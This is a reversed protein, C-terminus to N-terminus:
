KLTDLDYPTAQYVYYNLWNTYLLQAHSRWTVKPPLTPDDQPYYNKPLDMEMGKNIDRWYERALAGAEYEPHGQVFIKRGDRSMAVYAGAEPSTALLQLDSQAAIDQARVETHRSHPAFFTDDFGRFLPVNPLLVQHEFVGFVKKDLEYKKLGYHYHLGAQAGWCIYLTSFVHTKSWEMVRCLEPWYKVEEFAMREVPAGTVIMGDYREDKIESFTKYFVELYDADTHTPQYTETQLLDVEIQLPTNSLCRLMSTETESKLPMLNLLVLRLPRIDQNQARDNTMVFINEQELIARAPLEDPIKVPM